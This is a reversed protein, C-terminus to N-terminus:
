GCLVSGGNVNVIEGTMYSAMESALFLIPMAIEEPRAFRRLPITALAKRFERRDRVVPVCMDTAVWGPAVCNVLIGHPALEAALGKVLSIAGGKSAGYHSHFAEGRQGATSSVVVIRGSKQRIMQQAAFHIVSYTGKLNVDIMEDWQRESLREIPAPRVNWIGANAVLIDLRGFRRLAESVLKKAGAMRAVDARVAVVNGAEAGSKRVVERAAGAARRYSFVVRAGAAALLKVTARGIGRSGGTVVAVQNRLNIQM